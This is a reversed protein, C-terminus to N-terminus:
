NHVDYHSKYCDWTMRERTVLISDREDGRAGGHNKFIAHSILTLIYEVVFYDDFIKTVTPMSHDEQRRINPAVGFCLLRHLVPASSLETVKNMAKAAM